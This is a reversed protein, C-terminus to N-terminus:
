HQVRVGLSPVPTRLGGIHGPDRKHRNVTRGRKVIDRLM